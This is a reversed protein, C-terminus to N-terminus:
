LCPEFIERCNRNKVEFLHINKPNNQLGEFQQLILSDFHIILIKYEMMSWLKAIM